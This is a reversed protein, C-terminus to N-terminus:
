CFIDIRKYKTPNSKAQKVVVPKQKPAPTIRLNALLVGGVAVCLIM